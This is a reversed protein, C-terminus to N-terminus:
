SPPPPAAPWGRIQADRQQPNPPQGPQGPQGPQDPQVNGPPEAEGQRPPQGAAPVEPVPGPTTQAKIRPRPLSNDVTFSWSYDLANGKWDRATVAIEHRGNKLPVQTETVPTLQSQWRCRQLTNLRRAM